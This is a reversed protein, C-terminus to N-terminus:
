IHHVSVCVDSKCINRKYTHKKTLTTFEIHTQFFISNEDSRGVLVEILEGAARRNEM